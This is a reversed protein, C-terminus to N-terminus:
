PLVPTLLEFSAEEGEEPRAIAIIISTELYQICSVDPVALVFAHAILFTAGTEQHAFYGDIADMRFLVGTPSQYIEELEPHHYARSLTAYQRREAMDEWEQEYELQDVAVPASM